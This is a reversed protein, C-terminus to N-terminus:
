RSKGGIIIIPVSINIRETYKEAIYQHSGYGIVRTNSTLIPKVLVLLLLLIFQLCELNSSQCMKVNIHPKAPPFIVKVSTHSPLNYFNILFCM